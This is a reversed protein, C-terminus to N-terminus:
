KKEGAPKDKEGKADGAKGDLKALYKDPDAKFKDICSSCCFYVTRGNHEASFQKKAPRGEMVPCVKNAGAPLEDSGHMPSPEMMKTPSPMEGPQPASTTKPAPAAPASGKPPEPAPETCGALVLVWAAGLLWAGVRKM